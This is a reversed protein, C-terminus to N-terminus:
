KLLNRHNKFFIVAIAFILLSMLQYITLNFLIPPNDGRLFEIWFRTFSYFIIYYLFIQGAFHRKKLFFRLLLSIIFLNLASYLQVPFPLYPKGFCCGNLFCGIRGISHGLAINPSLIDMSEKIHFNHRKLFWIGSFFAAIFGGYFVLGGENLMLIKLPNKLYFPLNILVYFFRAGLIGSILVIVAFDYIKNGNLGKETFAKKSFIAAVLFAIAVMVGYSYISVPGLRFLIPHM